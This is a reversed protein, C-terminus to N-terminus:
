YFYIFYRLYLTALRLHARIYCPEIRVAVRCEFVAEILRGLGILAASKNSYYSANNCDLAIAQDYLVIADKFRGKKYEENGMNKLVEPGLRKM